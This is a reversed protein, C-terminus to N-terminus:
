YKHPGDSFLINTYKINETSNGLNNEKGPVCRRIMREVQHVQRGYKWKESDIQFTMKLLKKNEREKSRPNKM